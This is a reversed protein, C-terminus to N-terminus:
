GSVEAIEKERHEEIEDKLGLDEEMENLFGDVQDWFRRIYGIFHKVITKEKDNM